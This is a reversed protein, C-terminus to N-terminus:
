RPWPVYAISLPESLRQALAALDPRGPPVGRDGKGDPTVTALAGISLLAKRGVGRTVLTGDAASAMRSQVVAAEGIVDFLAGLVGSTPRGRLGEVEDFLVFDGFDLLRYRLLREFTVRLRPTALTDEYSYRSRSAQWGTVVNVALLPARGREVRAVVREPRYEIESDQRNEYALRAYLPAADHTLQVRDLFAVYWDRYSIFLPPGAPDRDRAARALRLMVEAHLRAGNATATLDYGGSERMAALIEAHSVVRRPAAPPAVLASAALALALRGLHIMQDM